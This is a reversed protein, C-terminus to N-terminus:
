LVHPPVDCHREGRRAARTEPLLRRVDELEQSRVLTREYAAGHAGRLAADARQDCLNPVRMSSWGGSCQAPGSDSSGVGTQFCNRSMPMKRRSPSTSTPTTAIEARAGSM